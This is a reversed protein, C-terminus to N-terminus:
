FSLYQQQPDDVNSWIQYLGAKQEVASPTLDSSTSKLDLNKTRTNQNATHPGSTEKAANNSASKIVAHYIIHRQAKGKCEVSAKSGVKEKRSNDV